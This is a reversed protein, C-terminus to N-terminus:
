SPDSGTSFVFRERFRGKGVEVRLDKNTASIIRVDVPVDVDSGVQRVKREQIARLLKAQVGPPLDAVEDLFLTGRDAALFVGKRSQLAGTFAGRCHGFLESEILSEPSTSCNFAVFPRHKRQGCHHIALAILEKGTGTEGAIHVTSSSGAITRIKSRLEQIGASRGLIRDAYDGPHPSQWVTSKRLQLQLAQRVMGIPRILYELLECLVRDNHGEGNQQRTRLLLFGKELIINPINIAILSGIQISHARKVVPSRDITRMVLRQEKVGFPEGWSDCWHWSRECRVVWTGSYIDFLRRMNEHVCTIFEDMSNVNILDQIFLAAHGASDPVVMSKEGPIALLLKAARSWRNSDAIREALDLAKRLQNSRNEPGLVGGSGEGNMIRDFIIQSQRLFEVQSQTSQAGIDCTDREDSSEVGFLSERCITRIVSQWKNLQQHNQYVPDTLAFYIRTLLEGPILEPNRFVEDLYRLSETERDLRIALLAGGYASTAFLFPRSFAPYDKFLQLILGAVANLQGSEFLMDMRCLTLMGQLHDRFGRKLLHQVARLCRAERLINGNIGHLRAIDLLIHAGLARNEHRKLSRLAQQLTSIAEAPNGHMLAQRGRLWLNEVKHSADDAETPCYEDLLDAALSEMGLEQSRFVAIVMLDRLVSPSFGEQTLRKLEKFLPFDSRQRAQIQVRLVQAQQRCQDDPNLLTDIMELAASYSGNLYAFEAKKLKVADPLSEPWIESCITLLEEVRRDDVQLFACHLAKLTISEAEPVRAKLAAWSMQQFLESQDDQCSKESIIRFLCRYIFQTRSASTSSILTDLLERDLFHYLHHQDQRVIIGQKILKGLTNVVGRQPHRVIKALLHHDFPQMLHAATELLRREFSTLVHEEM